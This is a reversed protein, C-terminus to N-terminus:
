TENLNTGNDGFCCSNSFTRIVNHVRSNFRSFIASLSSVCEKSDRRFANTELVVERVERPIKVHFPQRSSEPLIFLSSFHLLSCCFNSIYHHLVRKHLEKKKRKPKSKNFLNGFLCHFLCRGEPIFLTIWPSKVVELRYRQLVTRALEIKDNEEM